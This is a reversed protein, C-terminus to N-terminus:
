FFFSAGLSVTIGSLNLTIPTGDYYRTPNYGYYRDTSEYPTESPSWTTSDHAQSMSSFEWAGESSNISFISATTTLMYGIPAHLSLRPLIFYEPKIEVKGGYVSTRFLKM